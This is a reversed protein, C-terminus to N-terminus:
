VGAEQGCPLVHGRVLTRKVEGNLVEGLYPSLPHRFHLRDPTVQFRADPDFIVLDADYGPAIRGKRSQLGALQAPNESMWRVVNTIDFGRRQAATWMISLSLSLSAIGGWASSFDGQELRKMEPPCPSHDTAVLDILGQRLGDWLLERNTASRIPPACKFQTAGDRIDEAAFYLYHPCTEVTIPLGEARARRLEPLAKATALHVIHVRCRYERCLRILLRIAELESEDPRSRLYADYTPSATSPVLLDPLEAHTLLPLGTQALIPMAQRLDAESVMSFEDVGSPALFCKFGRVGAAALPLLDDRNGPVVGGWFAYDVFCQGRAAARKQELASVTTTAPISNLPMDVVCTVGGAAAAKTATTFGEWETRGPENIHVHTDILGPLVFHDGADIADAPATSFGDISSIRGHEFAVCAPRVGEPTVVRRSRLTQKM